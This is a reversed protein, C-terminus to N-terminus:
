INIDRLRVRSLRHERNEIFYLHIVVFWQSDYHQTLKSKLMLQLTMIRVVFPVDRVIM